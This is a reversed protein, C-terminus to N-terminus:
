PYTISVIQQLATCSYAMLRFCRFVNHLEVFSISKNHVFTTKHLCCNLPSNNSHIPANPASQQLLKRKEQSIHKSFTKLYARQALSVFNSCFSEGLCTVLRPDTVNNTDAGESADAPALKWFNRERNSQFNIRSLIDERAAASFMVINSVVIRWKLNIVRSKNRAEILVPKMQVALLHIPFTRCEYIRWLVALLNSTSRQVKLAM